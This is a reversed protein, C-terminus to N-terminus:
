PKTEGAFAGWVAVGGAWKVAEIESEDFNTASEESNEINKTVAAAHFWKSLFPFSSFCSAHVGWSCVRLRIGLLKSQM